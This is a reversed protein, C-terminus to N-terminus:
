LHRIGPCNLDLFKSIADFNNSRNVDPFHYVVTPTGVPCWHRRPNYSDDSWSRGDDSSEREKADQRAMALQVSVLVLKQPCRPPGPLESKLSCAFAVRLCGLRRGKLPAEAM